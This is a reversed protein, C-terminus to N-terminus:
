CWTLTLPQRTSVHCHSTVRPSVHCCTFRLLRTHRTAARSALPVPTHPAHSVSVTRPPRPPVDLAHEHPRFKLRRTSARTIYKRAKRPLTKSPIPQETVKHRQKPLQILLVIIDSLQLSQPCSPPSESRCHGSSSPSPLPLVGSIDVSILFDSFYSQYWTLLTFHSLFVSYDTYQYIYLIIYM